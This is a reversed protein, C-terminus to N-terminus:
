RASERQPNPNRGEGPKREEKREEREPVRVRPTPQVV